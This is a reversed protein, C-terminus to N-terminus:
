QCGGAASRLREATDDEPTSSISMSPVVVVYLLRLFPERGFEAEARALAEARAWCTNRSAVEEEQLSESQGQMAQRHHENRLKLYPASVKKLRIWFDSGFGLVVAGEEFRDKMEDPKRGDEPFAQSILSTFLEHPLFVEPERYGVISPLSSEEFVEAPAGSIGRWKARKAADDAQRARIAAEDFRAALREEISWQWAPKRQAGAQAPQQCEAPRASLVAAAALLGGLALCHRRRWTSIRM